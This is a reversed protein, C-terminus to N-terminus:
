VWPQYGLVPAHDPRVEGWSPSGPPLPHLEARRLGPRIRAWDALAVLAIVAAVVGPIRAPALPLLLFAFGGAIAAASLRWGLAGRTSGPRMLGTVKSM